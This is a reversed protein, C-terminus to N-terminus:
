VATVAKDATTASRLTSTPGPPCHMAANGGNSLLAVATVGTDTSTITAGSAQMFGLTGGSGGDGGQGGKGFNGAIGGEAGLGGNGELLVPVQSAGHISSTQGSQGGQTFTITGGDTGGAGAGGNTYGGLGLSGGAGGVGGNGGNGLLSVSSQGTQGSIVVGPSFKVNLPAVPDGKHGDGGNEHYGGDQGPTGNNGSVNLQYTPLTQPARDSRDGPRRRESRAVAHGAARGHPFGAHPTQRATEHDYELRSRRSMPFRRCSWGGSCLGYSWSGDEDGM